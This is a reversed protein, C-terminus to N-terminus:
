NPSWLPQCFQFHIFDASENSCELVYRVLDQANNVDFKFVKPTTSDIAQSGISGAGTDNENSTKTELKVTWSNANAVAYVEVAAVGNNGEAPMWFGEYRTSGAAAHALTEGLILMDM